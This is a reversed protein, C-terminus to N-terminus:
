FKNQYRHTHACSYDILYLLVCLSLIFKMTKFLLRSNKRGARTYIDSVPLKALPQLKIQCNITMFLVPSFSQSHYMKIIFIYYYHHNNTTDYSHVLLSKM